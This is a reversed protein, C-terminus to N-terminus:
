APQPAVQSRAPPAAFYVIAADQMLVFLTYVGILTGVPFSALGLVAAVIALIRAWAKRALLGFGAILGPIALAIMLTPISVAVLPLIMAAEPDRVLAAAGAILAFIGVGVLALVLNTAILLWAVVPVHVQLQQENLQKM